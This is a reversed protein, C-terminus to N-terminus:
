YLAFGVHTRLTYVWTTCISRWSLLTYTYKLRLVLFGTKQTKILDTWCGCCFALSKYNQIYTSSSNNSCLQDAAKTKAHVFHQNEWSAAWKISYSDLYVSNTWSYLLCLAGRLHAADHSFWCDAYAFGFACILKATIATVITNEDLIELKQGDETVTCAPRHKHWGPRFVWITPKRVCLSM